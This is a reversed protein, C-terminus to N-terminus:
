FADDQTRLDSLRDSFSCLLYKLFIARKWERDSKRIEPRLIIGESQPLKGRFKTVLEEVQSTLQYLDQPSDCSYTLTELVKLAIRAREGEVKVSKWLTQM